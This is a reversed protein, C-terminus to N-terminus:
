FGGGSQQSWPPVVGNTRAYAISQGLHEHMHTTAGIWLSQLSTKRGFMDVQNALSADPTDNMAKRIFDFSKRLEAIIQARDMKRNEFASASRYDNTIGTEAPPQAGAMAALLYNDSAVHKFVEGVSRVGPGPRWDYKDAPMANALQDLKRAVVNVDGLLDGMVGTRQQAASPMVGLVFALAPLAIIRTPRM